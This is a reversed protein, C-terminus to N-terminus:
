CLELQNLKVKESEICNNIWDMALPFTTKKMGKYVGIRFRNKINNYFKRYANQRNDGNQVKLAILEDRKKNLQHEQEDTIPLQEDVKSQNSELANVRKETVLQRQRLKIIGHSNQISQLTTNIIPDDIDDGIDQLTATDIGISDYIVTDTRAKQEMALLYERVKNCYLGRGTLSLFLFGKYSILKTQSDKSSLRFTERISEDIQHFCSIGFTEVNYRNLINSIAKNSSYGLPIALETATSFVQNDIEIARFGFEDSCRQYISNASEIDIQQIVCEIDDKGLQNKNLITPLSLM